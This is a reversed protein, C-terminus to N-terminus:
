NEFYTYGDISAKFNKLLQNKEKNSILKERYFKNTKESFTKLINSSSYEVYNLVQSIKDGIQEHVIKFKGNEELKVTSINTDGFLNHLDGLTERYAGVIAGFVVSSNPKLEKLKDINTTTLRAMDNEYRTLPHGTVYFGLAEKEYRLREREPWEHISENYEEKAKVSSALGVSGFLSEQGIAIDRQTSKAAGVARDIADFLRARPIEFEDFAGSRILTELTKKSLQKVPVRECFDYLSQFAGKEERAELIAQLAADGLGKIAGLGFRIQDGSVSFSIMSQNITPPLVKIGMQRAEAIDKVITETNTLETSMLAALFEVKKKEEMNSESESMLLNTILTKRM